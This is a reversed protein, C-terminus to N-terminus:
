AMQLKIYIGYMFDIETKNKKHKLTFNMNFSIDTMSFIKYLEAADLYAM